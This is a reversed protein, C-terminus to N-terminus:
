SHRAFTLRASISNVPCNFIYKKDEMEPFLMLAVGKLNAIETFLPPQAEEIDKEIVQDETPTTSPNPAQNPQPIWMYFLLNELSLESPTFFPLDQNMYNEMVLQMRETIM